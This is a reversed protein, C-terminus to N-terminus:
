AAAPELVEAAPTRPASARADAAPTASAAPAVPRAEVAADDGEGEPAPMEMVRKVLVYGCLLALYTVVGVATTSVLAHDLPTLLWLDRVFVILAAAASIQTILALATPQVRADDQAAAHAPATAASM